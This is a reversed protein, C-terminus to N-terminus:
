KRGKRRCRSSYREILTQDPLHKGIAPVSDLAEEINLIAIEATM